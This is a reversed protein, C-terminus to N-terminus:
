GQDGHRSNSENDEKKRTEDYNYDALHCAVLLTDRKIHGAIEKDFIQQLLDRMVAQLADVRSM